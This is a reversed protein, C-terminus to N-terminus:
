GSADRSARLSSTGRALRARARTVEDKQQALVLAIRDHLDLM